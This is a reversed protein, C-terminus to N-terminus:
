VYSWVIPTMPICITKGQRQYIVNSNRAVFDIYLPIRFLDIISFLERQVLIYLHYIGVEKMIIFSLNFILAELICWSQMSLFRVRAVFSVTVQLRRSVGHPRIVFLTYTSSTSIKHIITRFGEPGRSVTGKQCCTTWYSHHWQFALVRGNVIIYWM